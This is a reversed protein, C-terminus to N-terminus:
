QIKTVQIIIDLGLDVGDPNWLPNDSGDPLKKTIVYSPVRPDTDPNWYGEFVPVDLGVKLYDRQNATPTAFKKIPGPAHMVFQVGGPGTQNAGINHWAPDGCPPTVSGNSTLDVYLYLAEGLWGYYEVPNADPDIPKWAAYIDYYIDGVRDQLPDTECFSTSMGIYISRTLWEEPFVTHFNIEDIDVYLADEVHAKVNVKHAEYASVGAVGAIVLILACLALLARKM